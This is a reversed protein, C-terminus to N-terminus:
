CITAEHPLRKVGYAVYPPFLGAELLGKGEHHAYLPVRFRERVRLRLGSDSCNNRVEHSRAKIQYQSQRLLHINLCPSRRLAVRKLPLVHVVLTWETKAIEPLPVVIPSFCTVAVRADSFSFNGLDISDLDHPAARVTQSWCHAHVLDLIVNQPLM